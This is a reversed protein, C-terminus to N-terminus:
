EEFDVYAHRVGDVLIEEYVERPSGSITLSFEALIKEFEPTLLRERVAHKLPLESLSVPLQVAGALVRECLPVVWKWVENEDKNPDINKRIYDLLATTERRLRRVDIEAYRYTDGLLKVLQKKTSKV